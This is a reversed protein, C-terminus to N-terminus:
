SPVGYHVGYNHHDKPLVANSSLWHHFMDAGSDGFLVYHWFLRILLFRQPKSVRGPPLIALSFTSM